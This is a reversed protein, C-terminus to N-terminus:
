RLSHTMKIGSEIDEEEGEVITPSVSAPDSIRRPLPNSDSANQPPDSVKRLAPTAQKRSASDAAKHAPPDSLKRQLNSNTLKRALLITPSAM